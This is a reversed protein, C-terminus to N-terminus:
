APVRSVDLASQSRYTWIGRPRLSCVLVGAAVFESRRSVEWGTLPAALNQGAARQWRVLALPGSMGTSTVRATDWQGPLQLTVMM